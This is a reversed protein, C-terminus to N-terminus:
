TMRWLPTMLNLDLLTKLAWLEQLEPSRDRVVLSDKVKWGTWRLLGLFVMAYLIVFTIPMNVSMKSISQLEQGIFKISSETQPSSFGVIKVKVEM